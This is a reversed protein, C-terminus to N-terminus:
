IQFRVYQLDSKLRELSSTDEGAIVALDIAKSLTTIGDSLAVNNKNGTAVYAAFAKKILEITYRSYDMNSNTM